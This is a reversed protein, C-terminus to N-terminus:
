FSITKFNKALCEFSNEDIMECHKFECVFPVRFFTKIENKNLNRAVRVSRKKKKGGKQDLLTYYFLCNIKGEKRENFYIAVSSIKGIM